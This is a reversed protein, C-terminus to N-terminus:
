RSEQLLAFQIAQKLDRRTSNSYELDFWLVKGAADLLYTRPLDGNAVKDLAKGDADLLNPFKAGAAAIAGKAAAPADRENIGVVNVGYQGFRDAITPGLDGLEEVAYPLRSNWFVVVTLKNGLLSSLPKAAGQMDPLEIPPMADGVQVLSASREAETLLVKPMELPPRPFNFAEQPTGIVPPDEIPSTAIPEASPTPKAAEAPEPKAPKPSEPEAATVKAAPPEETARPTPAPPAPTPEQTCGTLILLCVARRALRAALCPSTSPIRQTM